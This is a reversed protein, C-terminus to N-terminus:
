ALDRTLLRSRLEKAVPAPLSVFHDHLFIPGQVIALLVSAETGVGTRDCARIPTTISEETERRAGLADGSIARRLANAVISKNGLSLDAAILDSGKNSSKEHSTLLKSNTGTTFIEPQRMCM